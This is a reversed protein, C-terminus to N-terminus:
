EQVRVKSTECKSAKIIHQFDANKKLLKCMRKSKSVRSLLQLFFALTEEESILEPDMTGAQHSVEEDQYTLEENM